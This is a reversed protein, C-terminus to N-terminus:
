RLKRLQKALDKYVVFQFYAMLGSLRLGHWGDRWGQLTVFRWYFQRLPQLVFNRPQARFGQGRLIGADYQAYKYQKAIFEPM